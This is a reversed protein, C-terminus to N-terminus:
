LSEQDAVATSKREARLVRALDSNTIHVRELSERIGTTAHLLFEAFGQLEDPTRAEGIRAICDTFRAELGLLAAVADRASNAALQTVTELEHWQDDLKM